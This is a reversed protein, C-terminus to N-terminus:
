RALEPHVANMHRAFAARRHARFSRQGMTVADAMNVVRVGPQGKARCISCFQRELYGFRQVTMDTARHKTM